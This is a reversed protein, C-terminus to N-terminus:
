IKNEINIVKFKYHYFTFIFTWVVRKEFIVFYVDANEPPKANLTTKDTLAM